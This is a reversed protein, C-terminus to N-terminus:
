CAPRLKFKVVYRPLAGPGPQLRRREPVLLIDHQEAWRVMAGVCEEDATGGLYLAKLAEWTCDKV